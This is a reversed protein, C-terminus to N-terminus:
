SAPEGAEAAAREILRNSLYYGHRVMQDLYPVVASILGARKASVLIGASGKVRLGYAQEAIRRARREDILVLQAQLLQGTALVAAEGPGLELALLPEPVALETRELWEASAILSAGARDLGGAVVERFVPEPVIVRPYLQRLLDLQGVLSLAILPGANCVVPGDPM